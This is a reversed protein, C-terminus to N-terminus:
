CNCWGSFGVRDVGFYEYTIELLTLLCSLAKKKISLLMAFCVLNALGDLSVTIKQRFAYM